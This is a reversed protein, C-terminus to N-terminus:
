FIGVKEDESCLEETEMLDANEITKIIQEVMKEALVTSKISPNGSGTKFVINKRRLSKVCEYVADTVDEKSHQFEYDVIESESPAPNGAGSTSPRDEM